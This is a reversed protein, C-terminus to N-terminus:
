SERPALVAEALTELIEKLLGDNDVIPARESNEDGEEFLLGNWIDGDDDGGYSEAVCRLLAAVGALTSPRTNLEATAVVLRRHAANWADYAVSRPSGETSGFWEKLERHKQAKWADPDACDAPVSDDIEVPLRGYRPVMRGTHVERMQLDRWEGFFEQKIEPFEGLYIGDPNRQAEQEEALRHFIEDTANYAEFAQRHREIVAFVPDDGTAPLGGLATAAAPVAAAAVAPIRALLRRRSLTQDTKM